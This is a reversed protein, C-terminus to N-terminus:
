SADLTFGTPDPAPTVYITIDKSSFSHAGTVTLVLNGPAFGNPIVFSSDDFNGSADATFSAVQTSGTRDTTVTIPENPIYGHGIFEIHDGPAGYYRALQLDTYTPAVTMTSQATSGSLAGTAFITAAGSAQFPVSLNATFSGTDDATATGLATSTPGASGSMIAVSEGSAFNHGFVTLPSGGSAWYTSLTMWSYYSGIAMDFHTQAGSDEGTASVTLTTDPKPPVQV